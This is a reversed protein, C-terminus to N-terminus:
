PEDLTLEQDVLIGHCFLEVLSKAVESRHGPDRISVGTQRSRVSDSRIQHELMGYLFNTLVEPATTDKVFGRSQAASFYENVKEIPRLIVELVDDSLSDGGEDIERNIIRHGDLNKLHATFFRDVFTELTKQFFHQSEPARLVQLALELYNTTVQEICARYLGQKGGFHYSVLSINVGAKGVIERVSTGRFGGKAFLTTAVRLLRNRTKIQEAAPAAMADM